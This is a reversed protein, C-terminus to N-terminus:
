LGDIMVDYKTKYGDGSGLKIKSFGVNATSGNYFKFVLYPTVDWSAAGKGHIEISCRCGNLSDHTYENNLVPVDFEAAGPTGIAHAITQTSEPKKPDYVRCEIQTNEDLAKGEPVPIGKFSVEQLTPDLKFTRSSSFLSAPISLLFVATLAYRGLTVM